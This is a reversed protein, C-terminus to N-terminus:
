RPKWRAGLEAPTPPQGPLPVTVAAPRLADLQLQLYRRRLDQTRGADGLNIASLQEFLMALDSDDLDVRVDGASQAASLLGAALAGAEAALVPLDAAPTFTGSLHVTLSHVDADIIGRLFTTFAKGPDSRGASAEQAIRIFERLGERCLTQLLAEKSPYRRYLASIGVGAEKAVEAVPADPQRVFVRRAAALIKGDNRAAEARRGSAPRASASAPNSVLMDRLM